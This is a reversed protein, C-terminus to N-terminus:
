VEKMQKAEATTCVEQSYRAKEYLNHIIDRQGDQLMGASEELETPTGSPRPAGETLTLIKKKYYRRITEEPTRSRFFGRRREKKLHTKEDQAAPNLFEVKDEDLIQTQVYKKYIQYALRVLFIVLATILGIILIKEMVAFFTQWFVSPEKAEGMPFFPMTEAEEEPPLPIEEEGGLFSLLWRILALVMNGLKGLLRDAGSFPLFIMGGTLLICLSGLAIRNGLAIRGRPFRYLKQNQEYLHLLSRRNSDLICLLWYFGAAICLSYGLLKRHYALAYFYIGAFGLLVAYHPKAFIGEGSGAREMFYGLLLFVFGAMYGARIWFDGAAEYLVFGCVMCALLFPLIGKFKKMTGYMIVVPLLMLLSAALSTKTIDGGFSFVTLSVAEAMLFTHVLRYFILLDMKM